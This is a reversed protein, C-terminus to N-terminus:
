DPQNVSNNSKILEEMKKIVIEDLLDYTIDRKDGNFSYIQHLRIETKENINCKKEIMKGIEEYIMCDPDQVDLYSEEFIGEHIYSDDIKALYQLEDDLGLAKNFLESAEEDDYCRGFGVEYSVIDMSETNFVSFLIPYSSPNVYDVESILDSLEKLNIKKM